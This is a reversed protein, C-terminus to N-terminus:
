GIRSRIIPPFLAGHVIRVPADVALGNRGLVSVVESIKEPFVLCGYHDFTCHQVDVRTSTSVADLAQTVSLRNLISKTESTRDM